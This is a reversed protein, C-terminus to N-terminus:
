RNEPYTGDEITGPPQIVKNIVGCAVPLTQHNAFPGVTGVTLDLEMGADVGLVVAVRSEINLPERPKLKLYGDAGDVSRLDSIFDSFRAVESYFYNGYVDGYPVSNNMSAQSSLDGDLPILVKGYVAEGEIADIVGDKNTDDQPGPCRNGARVSQSHQVDVGANTIRVDGVIEDTEKERSFTFAGTIKKTLKSNTTEFVALYQGEVAADINVDPQVEVEPEVVVPLPAVPKLPPTVKSPAKDNGGDCAALLLLGLITIMSTQKM